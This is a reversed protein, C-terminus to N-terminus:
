NLTVTQSYQNAVTPDVGLKILAQAIAQRRVGKGKPLGM